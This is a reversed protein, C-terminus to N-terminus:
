WSHSNVSGIVLFFRCITPSSNLEIRPLPVSVHSCDHWVCCLVSWRRDWDYRHEITSFSTVLVLRRAGCGKFVNTVCNDDTLDEFGNKSVRLFFGDCVFWKCSGHIMDLSLLNSVCQKIQWRRQISVHHPERPKCSNDSTTDFVHVQSAIVIAIVVFKQTAILALVVLKLDVFFSCM